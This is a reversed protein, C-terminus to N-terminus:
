ERTGGSAATRYSAISLREGVTLFRALVDLARAADARRTDLEPGDVAAPSRRLVAATLEERLITFERRIEAESWGLRARQAGHREAVVRQIASSDGVEAARDNTSGDLSILTSALDALFSALHDEIQAEDITQASPTAPDSRVRAVYAFLVRELNGLVAEGLSRLPGKNSSEDLGAAALSAGPGEAGEGALSEVPAAPLWLVFTSGIGLESRVTVDGGMVRALRRSIALGLGTGGHERTLAMDAQTFPEFIAEIRDAPVGIGSDEVSVYVWPGGGVLQADPSPETAMGASVTIRGAEDSTSEGTPKTFKVSNALLNVLIQRVRSDDAWAAVAGAVGSVADTLEVGRARAEPRVMEIAREVADGLRVVTRDVPMRNAEVRSFDLVDNILSLLHKASAAASDLHRRQGETLPGDIEENLLGIYGVVANVPTRIEHSMTAMFGSKAATAAVAEARATDAAEAATRLLSEAARWATLDRTVKAFGLLTGNEDWLATLTVGALFTSGDRRVRLGEGSYEGSEAAIELHEEASGDDAGGAPYLLRLHAGEAQEQTWWKLRRAGEGWFTIIGSPDMLFIAYDRVNDALAVFAREPVGPQAGLRSAGLSSGTPSGRSTGDPTGIGAARADSSEAGRRRAAARERDEPAQQDLEDGSASQAARTDM